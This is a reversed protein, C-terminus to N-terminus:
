AIIGQFVYPMTTRCPESVESLASLFNIIGLDRDERTYGAFTLCEAFNLIYKMKHYQELEIHQEPSANMPNSNAIETETDRWVLGPNETNVYHITNNNTTIHQGYPNYIYNLNIDSMIYVTMPSIPCIRIKSPYHIRNWLYALAKILIAIQNITLSTLWTSNTFHGYRDIEAFLETIRTAIPLSRKELIRRYESDIYQVNARLFFDRYAYFFDPDIVNVVSRFYYYTQEFVYGPTREEPTFLSPNFDDIAPEDEQADPM